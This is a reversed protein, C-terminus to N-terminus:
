LQNGRETRGKERERCMLVNHLQFLLEPPAAKSSLCELQQQRQTWICLVGVSLSLCHGTDESVPNGELRGESTDREAEDILLTVCM